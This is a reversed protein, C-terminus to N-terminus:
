GPQPQDVRGTLWDIRIHWARDAQRIILEDGSTSGDPFFRILRAQRQSDLRAGAPLSHSAAPSQDSWGSQTLWVDREQGREMAAARTQRLDSALAAAAQEATRAPLLNLLHGPMSALLGALIALVVCMELLSFGAQSRHRTRGRRLNHHM